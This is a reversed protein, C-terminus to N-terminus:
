KPLQQTEKKADKFKMGLVSTMYDCFESYFQLIEKEGVRFLVCNRQNFTLAQEVDDKALIEM